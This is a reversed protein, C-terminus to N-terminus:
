QLIRRPPPTRILSTDRYSLSYNDRLHRLPRFPGGLTRIKSYLTFRADEAQVSPKLTSSLEPAKCRAVRHQARPSELVVNPLHGDQGVMPKDVPAKWRRAGSSLEPAKWAWLKGLGRQIYPPVAPQKVHM